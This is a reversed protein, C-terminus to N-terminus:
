GKIISTFKIDCFVIEIVGILAMPRKVSPLSGSVIAGGEDLVFYPIIGKEKLANVSFLAGDGSTEEDTSSSIYVDHEPTYGSSILEDIAKFIGYLTSKTDLTGRGFIETDTVEGCFPEFDWGSANAPVVDQHAMLVIPKETSKGPWRFLIAEGEFVTQEMTKYLNPFIDKMVKHMDRFPKSNNSDKKYSLTEIQIMRSFEHAYKSSIQEDIKPLASINKKDKIRLSNILAALLLIVIIGLLSLLIYIIIM